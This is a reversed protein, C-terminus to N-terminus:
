NKQQRSRGFIDKKSPRNTRNQRRDASDRLGSYVDDILQWSGNRYESARYSGDPVQTPGQGELRGMVTAMNDYVIRNNKSEYTLTANADASYQMILRTSKEDSGEAFLPLGLRIQDKSVDIVECTKVKTFQDVQRFTFVYTQDGVIFLDYVLGGSWETWPVSEYPDIASNGRGTKGLLSYRGDAWQFAGFYKYKGEGQDIQWTLIRYTSDSAYVKSMGSINDFADSFSGSQELQTVFMDYFQEAAYQRHDSDRASLMVDGYFSLSQATLAGTIFISIILLGGRFYWSM